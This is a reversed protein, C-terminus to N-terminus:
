SVILNAYAGVWRTSLSFGSGSNEGEAAGGAVERNQTLRKKAAAMLESYGREDLQTKAERYQELSMADRPQPLDDDFM